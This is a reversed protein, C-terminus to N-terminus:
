FHRLIWRGHSDYTNASESYLSVNLKFIEIAEKTQEQDLLRYGWASVDAEPLQFTADKQRVANVAESAHEFGRKMLEIDLEKISPPLGIGPIYYGAVGDIFSEPFAGKLNTLIVVALDDEPYIFLASRIGGVAPGRCQSLCQSSTKVRDSPAARM